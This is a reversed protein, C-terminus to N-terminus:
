SLLPLYDTLDARHGSAAVRGDAVAAAFGERGTALRLWTVPDTEVVNPPTGRTHRPGAIAQVAAFPPVRLEVSRGPSRAALIQVLTRVATALAPRLLPVPDVAPLSRSLDDSHIVIEVIRTTALDLATIPGRGGLVVTRDAVGDAAARVGDVDQLAAILEAPTLSGTVARTSEAIQEVAPRYRSVFEAASTAQDAVRNGLARVLGQQMLVVHGVLTRVDWGDLVSPAAFAEPPLASLWEALVAGQALFAEVHGALKESM